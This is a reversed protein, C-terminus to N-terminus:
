RFVAVAPGECNEASQVMRADTLCSYSPQLQPIEVLKERGQVRFYSSRRLLSMSCSILPSCSPFRLPRSFQVLLFPGRCWSLTTSSRSMSLSPCTLLWDLFACNSVTRVQRQPMVAIDVARDIFQLSAGDVTRRLSSSSTASPTVSVDGTGLIQIDGRPQLHGGGTPAVPRPAFGVAVLLGWTTWPRPVVHSWHCGQRTGHDEEGLEATAVACTSPSPVPVDM